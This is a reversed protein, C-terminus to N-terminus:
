QAGGWGGAAIADQRIEIERPRPPRLRHPLGDNERTMIDRDAVRSWPKCVGVHTVYRVGARSDACAPRHAGDERGRAILRLAVRREHSVRLADVRPEGTDTM